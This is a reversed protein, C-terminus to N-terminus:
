GLNNPDRGRWLRIRVLNPKPLSPLSPLRQVLRARLPRTKDAIYHGAKSHLNGCIADSAGWLSNILIMVGEASLIAPIRLGVAAYAVGEPIKDSLAQIRRSTIPYNEKLDEALQDLGMKSFAISYTAALLGISFQHTTDGATASSTLLAVHGLGHLGYGISYGRYSNPNSVFQTLEGTICLFLAGASKLEGYSILLLSGLLSTAGGLNVPGIHKEPKPPGQIPAPVTM